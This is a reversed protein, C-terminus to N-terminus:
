LITKIIFESWILECIKLLNNHDLIWFLILSLLVWFRVWSKHEMLKGSQMNWRTLPNRPQGMLTVGFINEKSRYNLNLNGHLIIKVLFNSLWSTQSIWKILLISHELGKLSWFSIELFQVWNRERLFFGRNHNCQFIVFSAYKGIRLPNLIGFGQPSWKSPDM